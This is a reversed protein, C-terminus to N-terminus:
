RLIAQVMLEFDACAALTQVRAGAFDGRPYSGGFRFGAQQRQEDLVGRRRQHNLLVGIRVHHQIQRIKELPESRLFVAVPVICFTWVIHGRVDTGCEGLRANRNRHDASPHRQPGPLADVHELVARTRLPSAHHQMQCLSRRRTFYPQCTRVQGHTGIWRHRPPNERPTRLCPVFFMHISEPGSSTGPPPAVSNTERRTRRSGLLWATYREGLSKKM